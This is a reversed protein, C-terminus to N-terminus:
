RQRVGVRALARQAAADFSAKDDPNYTEVAAALRTLSDSVLNGVPTLVIIPKDMMVALGLELAARPNEHFSPTYLALFVRSNQIMPASREVARRLMRNIEDDTM